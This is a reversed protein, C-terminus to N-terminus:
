ITALVQKFLAQVEATWVDPANKKKRMGGMALGAKDVQAGGAVADRLWGLAQKAEAESGADCVASVFDEAWGAKDGDIGAGSANGEENVVDSRAGAQAFVFDFLPTHGFPPCL